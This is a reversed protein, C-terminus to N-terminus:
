DDISGASSSEERAPEPYSDPIGPPLARETQTGRDAGELVVKARMTTELGAGSWCFRATPSCCGGHRSQRRCGLEM